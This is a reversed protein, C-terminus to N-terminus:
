LPRLEIRRPTAAWVEAGRLAVFGAVDPAAIVECTDTDVVGLVIRRGGSDSNQTLAMNADRAREIGSADTYVVVFDSKVRTVAATTWTTRTYAM